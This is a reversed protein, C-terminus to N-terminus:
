GRLASFIEPPRTKPIPIQVPRVPDAGIGSLSVLPFPLLSFPVVARVPNAVLAGAMEPWGHLAGGSILGGGVVVGGFCQAGGDIM